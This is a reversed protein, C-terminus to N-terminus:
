GVAERVLDRVFAPLAFAARHVEPTYVRTTIGRDALRAAVMEPPTASVPPGSTATTYSWVVGPYTPVFGQYVEVADFATAMNRLATAFEAGQYFPSGTQQVLVGGSRLARRCAAYFEPTFLVVAAGVPDTSDVVIVDFTDPHRDVYAMGDEFVVTANPAEFAGASVSPMHERCARTVAEDIECMVAQEPRHELVRRLTGGDGGGIVLVRGLEERSCLAPHVLMEHYWYEDGESTQVLGDLVLV